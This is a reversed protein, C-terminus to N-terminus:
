ASEQLAQAPEAARGTLVAGAPTTAPTTLNEAPVGLRNAIRSLSTGGPQKEGREVRYLFDVTFGAAKALDAASIGGLERLRRIEAGNVTHSLM